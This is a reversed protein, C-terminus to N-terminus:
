EGANLVAIVSDTLELDESAYLVTGRFVNFTTEEDQKVEVPAIEVVFDVGKDKAVTVVAERAKLELPLLHQQRSKNRLQQTQAQFAQFQKGMAQFQGALANYEAEAEAKAEESLAPNDKKTELEKGQEQMEQLKQQATGLEEEAQAISGRYKELATQYNTYGALLRQMNVAGVVPTKQAFVSTAVLLSAIFAISLKKM